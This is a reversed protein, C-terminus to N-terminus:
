PHWFMALNPISVNLIVLLGGLIYAVGMGYLSGAVIPTIYESFRRPGLARQLLIKAILGVLASFWSLPFLWLTAVMASPSFLTLPTWFRSLYPIGFILLFGVITGIIVTSFSLQSNWWNTQQLLGSNFTVPIQWGTGPGSVPMNKFGYHNVFWTNLTFLTPFMIVFLVITWYYVDKISAGLREAMNYLYGMPAALFSTDRNDEFTHLAVNAVLLSTNTQPSQWSWVGLYAGPIFYMTWYANTVDPEPIFTEILIRGAAINWAEVVVFWIIAMIPNLGAAIWIGLYLVCAIVFAALTTKGSLDQVMFDGKQKLSQVISKIRDRANWLSWVGLAFCFGSATWVIYPIPPRFGYYFESWSEGGYPVLGLRVITTQYLGGVLFWTLVATFGVSTPLFMVLVSDLYRWQVAFEWGPLLTRTFPSFDINWGWIGAFAGLVGVNVYESALEIMSVVSFILLSAWFLKQKTTELSFLKSRGKEDRNLFENAAYVTPITLPFGLREVETWQPGFVLFMLSINMVLQSIYILSWTLIPVIWVSWNIPSGLGLWARNIADMDHPILWSPLSLLIPAYTPNSAIGAWLTPPTGYWLLYHIYEATGGVTPWYRGAIFWMTTLLMVLQTPNLRFKPSIRALIELILFVWIPPIFFGCLTWAKSGASAVAIFTGITFVFTLIILLAVFQLNQSSFGRPRPKIKEEESTSL